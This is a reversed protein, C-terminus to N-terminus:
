IVSETDKPSPQYPCTNLPKCGDSYKYQHKEFFRVQEGSLGGVNFLSVLDTHALEVCRELTETPM